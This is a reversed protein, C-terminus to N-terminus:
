LGALASAPQADLTTRELGLPHAYGGQPIASTQRDLDCMVGAKERTMPSGGNGITKVFPRQRDRFTSGTPTCDFGQNRLGAPYL